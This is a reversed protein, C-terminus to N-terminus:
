SSGRKARYIYYHSLLLSFIWPEKKLSGRITAPSKLEYDIRTAPSLYQFIALRHLEKPGKEKIHLFLREMSRGSYVQSDIILVKKGSYNIEKNPITAETEKGTNDYESIVNYFVLEEMKFNFALISAPVIGSNLGVIVDPNVKQIQSALHPNQMAKMVMRWTIRRRYNQILEIGPSSLIVTVIIGLIFYVFSEM